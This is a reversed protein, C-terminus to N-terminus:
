EDSTTRRSMFVRNVFARYNRVLKEYVPGSTTFFLYIAFFWVLGYFIQNFATMFDFQPM